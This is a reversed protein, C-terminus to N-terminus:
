NEKKLFFFFTNLRKLNGFVKWDEEKKVRGHCVEFVGGKQCHEEKPEM